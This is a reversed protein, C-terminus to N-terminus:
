GLQEAAMKEFYLLADEMTWVQEGFGHNLMIPREQKVISPYALKARRVYDPDRDPDPSRLWPPLRDITM